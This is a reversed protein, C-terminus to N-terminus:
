SDSRELREHLECARAVVAPILGELEDVARGLEEGSMPRIGDAHDMFADRLQAFRRALDPAVEDLLYAGRDAMGSLGVLLQSPANALVDAQWIQDLEIAASAVIGLMEELTPPPAQEAAVEDAFQPEADFWPDEPEPEARAPSGGARRVWDLHAALVDRGSVERRVIPGNLVAWVAFPLVHM